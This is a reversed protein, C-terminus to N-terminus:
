INYISGSTNESTDLKTAYAKKLNGHMDTMDRKLECEPVATPQHSYSNQYNSGLQTKIVQRKSQM